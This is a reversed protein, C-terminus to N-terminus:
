FSFGCKVNAVGLADDREGQALNFVRASYSLGFHIANKNNIYNRFGFGLEGIMGGKGETVIYGMDLFVAPAFKKKTITYRMDIFIPIEYYDVNYFLVGVGLGLSLKENLQYGNIFDIGGGIMGESFPGGAGLALGVEILGLYGSKKYGNETLVVNSNDKNKESNNTTKDTRINESTINKVDSMQFVFVSGDSTEIKIRNDSTLETIYGKIISGNNLYIVNRKTITQGSLQFVILFTIFLTIIIQKM